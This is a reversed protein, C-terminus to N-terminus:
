KIYFINNKKSAHLKETTNMNLPLTKQQWLKLLHPCFSYMPQVYLSPIYPGLVPAASSPKLENHKLLYKILLELFNNVHFKIYYHARTNLCQSTRHYWSLDMGINHNRFMLRKFYWVKNELNPVFIRERKICTISSLYEFVSVILM